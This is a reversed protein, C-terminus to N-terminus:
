LYLVSACMPCFAIIWKVCYLLFHEYIDCSFALECAPFDTEQRSDCWGVCCFRICAHEKTCVVYRGCTIHAFIHAMRIFCYGTCFSDWGAEHFKVDLDQSQESVDSVAEQVDV